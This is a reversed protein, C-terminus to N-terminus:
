GEAYTAAVAFARHLEKRLEGPLNSGAAEWAVLGLFEECGALPNQRHRM